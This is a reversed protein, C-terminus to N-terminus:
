SPVTNQLYAEAIFPADGTIVAVFVGVRLRVTGNVTGESIIM